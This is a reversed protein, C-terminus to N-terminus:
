VRLNCHEFMDLLTFCLSSEYGEFNKAIQVQWLCWMICHPMAKWFAINRHKGFFFGALRTVYRILGSFDNLDDM